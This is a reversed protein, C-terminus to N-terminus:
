YIAGGHGSRNGSGNVVERLMYSVVVEFVFTLLVTMGGRLVIHLDAIWAVTGLGFYTTTADYFSFICVAYWMWPPIDKGRLKSYITNIQLLSAAGVGIWPFVPQSATVGPLGGPVSFKFSAIMGWFLIGAGNFSRSVVELGLVSFGGNIAWFVGGFSIVALWTSVMSATLMWDIQRRPSQLDRSQVTM